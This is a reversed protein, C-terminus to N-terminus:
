LLGEFYDQAYDALDRYVPNRYAERDHEDLFYGAEERWRSVLGGDDLAERAAQKMPSEGEGEAPDKWQDRLAAQLASWDLQAGRRGRAYNRSILVFHELAEFVGLRESKPKNPTLWFAHEWGPVRLEWHYQDPLEEDQVDQVWGLAWCQLALDLRRRQGLLSVFRPHIVRYSRGKSRWKIELAVAEKEEKRTFQSQLEQVLRKLSEENRNQAEDIKQEYAEQCREWMQFDELLLGVWTRVATLRYPDEADLVEVPHNTDPKEGGTIKRRLHKEVQETFGQPDREKNVSVSFAEMGPRAGPM